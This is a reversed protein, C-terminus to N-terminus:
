KEYQCLKYKPEAQGGARDLWEPECQQGGHLSVNTTIANGDDRADVGDCKGRARRGNSRANGLEGLELLGEAAEELPGRLLPAWPVLKWM